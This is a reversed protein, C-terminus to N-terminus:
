HDIGACNVLVDLRGYRAEVSEVAEKVAREDAVNCPQALHPRPGAELERSTREAAEGNIDLCAVACGSRAFARATAQGLGSGAGTVVAVKGSLDPENMSTEKIAM